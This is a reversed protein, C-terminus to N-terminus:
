GGGKELRNVIKFAMAVSAVGFIVSGLATGLMVGEAGYYRAGAYAFPM